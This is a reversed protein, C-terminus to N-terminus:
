VPSEKKEAEKRQEEKKDNAEKREESADLENNAIHEQTQLRRSNSQILSRTLTNESSRESKKDTDIFLGEDVYNGDKITKIEIMLRKLLSNNTKEYVNILSAAINLGVGFWILEQRNYGAAITTTLIGASQLFHFLYMLCQNTSNLCQRKRLFRNLDDLENKDFIKQIEIAVDKNVMDYETNMYKHFVIAFELLIMLPRKNTAQQGEHTARRKNGKTHQGYKWLIGELLRQIEM